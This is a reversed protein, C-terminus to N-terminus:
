NMFLLAGFGTLRFLILRLIVGCDLQIIHDRFTM